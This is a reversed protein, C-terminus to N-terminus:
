NRFADFRANGRTRINELENKLRDIEYNFESKTACDPTIYELSNRENGCSRQVFIQAMPSPAWIDRDDVFDLELNYNSM